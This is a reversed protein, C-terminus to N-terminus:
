PVVSDIVVAVNSAGVKVKRSVGQLDGSQPTAGGSKSIRASVVVERFNSLKMEPSMAQSDDLTFGAPLDKVQRRVLALPQRPGDAARTFIFVTDGPGAKGALAPSLSVTGRVSAAAPPTPKSAAGSKIGGLQRAEEINAAVNRAFESDPEARSRLKEWYGIAQKYEKREFAASGAMALAKWQTPDIQLAQEILQLPKGEMRRGQSMALADAYDALLDADDKLLAVARAYAATADQYRQM